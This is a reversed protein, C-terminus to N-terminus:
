AKRFRFLKCCKLSVEDNGPLTRWTRRGIAGFTELLRSKARLRRLNGLGAYMMYGIFHKAKITAAKKTV